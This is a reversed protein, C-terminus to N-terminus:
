GAGVWCRWCWGLGGAGGEERRDVRGVMFGTSFSFFYIYIYIYTYREAVQGLKGGNMRGKGGPVGAIGEGFSCQSVACRLIVISLPCSTFRVSVFRVRGRGRGRGSRGERM